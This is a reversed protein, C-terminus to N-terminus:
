VRYLDRSAELWARDLIDRVIMPTTTPSDGLLTTVEAALYRCINAIAEVANERISVFEDRYPPASGARVAEEGRALRPDDEVM